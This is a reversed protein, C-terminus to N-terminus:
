SLLGEIEQFVKELGIRKHSSFLEAKINEGYAELEQNVKELAINCEVRSLKDAKTLLVFIPLSAEASWTLLDRDINKLPHRIDMLLFLGKLSRRNELYGNILKQWKVRVNIPVKAYGYGPLDILRRKDDIVFVNILQTTGPTKGVRALGKIGSIANIASSKGVNSSGIFAVEADVDPPLQDLRAASLLFAINHAYHTNNKKIIM